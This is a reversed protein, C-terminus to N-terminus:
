SVTLVGSDTEQWVQKYALVSSTIDFGSSTFSQRALERGVDDHKTEALFSVAKAAWQEDTSELSMSKVRSLLDSIERIVPLNSSLVPLGAAAAELVVGPLGEWLSPLLMLDAAHLLRPVDNRLGAFVVHNELGCDIIRKRLCIEIENGGRGVLLLTSKERQKVIEAFISLLREHNKAESFRGVHIYLETKTDIEFEQRTIVPDGLNQFCDLDIGNYIIRCRPDRQWDFRWASSMAADSVAVIHTSYRQIMYSMVARQFRRVLTNSNGDHSTRFSTIRNPVNALAALWLLFGSPYHVNSQVVDYRQQRLLRIFKLPFDLKYLPLLHVEGGMERIEKDMDGPQGSLACFDLQYQRRDLHRMIEVTRTEAGGRNMRGFLLLIRLPETVM